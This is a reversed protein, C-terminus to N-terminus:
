LVLVLDGVQFTRPHVLKDHAQIMKAKYLKLNQQAQLRKEELGELEELGLRANQETNIQYNVVVRLSPLQVELPIVAESSFVLAFTTSQTLTRYTTRYAWLAEVLKEHWQRKNDDLTKKLIQILTKNFAEALGNARPYYITSYRWDINHRKSFSKIKTNRFSRGNDLINWHPVGFRYVVNEKFFKLVQQAKVERLPVAEACKSFYDTAALIFRHGRSSPPDISGIIDTGWSEFPWSAITPHLVNPPQHLVVGHVQCQHGHRAIKMCDDIMSPWYYGMRKIKMKMKPGSQHAGCLGAHVEEVIKQAESKNLCRLWMQDFSRKNLTNNILSYSLSRRKIKDAASKEQPLKNEQLYEIFPKRWDLGEDNVASVIKVETSCERSIHELDIPSLVQRGQVEIPISDEEPFALAKALKALADATSNKGRPIRYLTVNLIQELLHMVYQHYPVLTNKLVKFIRAIQNIVLQSDGFIKIEEIGNLITLELGTILTEYEAENNTRSESLHYSYYMIGRDPTVFVIGIGAQGPLTEESEGQQISAAGDFYFEWTFKENKELEIVQEDPLEDNIPFDDETPYAALFDAIARGKVARLLTFIIDFQSLIMSWRALRGSLTPRTMLYQLPNIRSILNVKHSLMYHRLKQAAFILALCHKEIPPYNVETPLLRRSLYYLANEKGEENYQALLAGLSESLATTYLILPKGPIPAAFVLPNMFYQKM